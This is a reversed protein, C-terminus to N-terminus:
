RRASPSVQPRSRKAQKGPRRVKAIRTYQNPAQLFTLPDMPQRDRMLEFHLHVGTAHGTAGMGGIIQGARVRDGEKVEFRKLHAYLTAWQPSYEIIVMNGYGRFRHGVYIVKGEHAAMVVSGAPGGLDVGMHNRDDPPRFGRNIRVIPVPWRLQFEADPTFPEAHRSSKPYEIPGYEDPTKFRGTGRYFHSCGSLLWSFVLLYAMCLRSFLHVCVLNPRDPMRSRM